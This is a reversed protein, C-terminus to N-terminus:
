KIFAVEGRHRLCTSTGHIGRPDGHLEQSIHGSGTGVEDGQLGGCQQEQVIAQMMVGLIDGHREGVGLQWPAHAGTVASPIAMQDLLAAFSQEFEGGQDHTIKGPPGYPMIWHRFFKQAIYDSRRTKVMVCDHKLTGLCLMSMVAYRKDRVDHVFKLDLHIHHNFGYPRSTVTSAQPHKPRQKAACVPCTWRKAYRIAEATSGSLRMMRLMTSRSPHGLQRHVFEVAKRVEKSVPRREEDDLGEKKDSPDLFDEDQDALQEEEHIAEDGDVPEPVGQESELEEDEVYVGNSAELFDESGRVLRECLEKPYGGAYESLAAWKGSETRYGGEIPHHEHSGDCKLDKLQEVVARPGYILTAKKLAKGNTPHKLGVMCQDFVVGALGMSAEMIEPTKWAKSTAPNEM